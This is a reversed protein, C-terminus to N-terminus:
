HLGAPRPRRSRRPAHRSRATGATRRSRCRCSPRRDRRPALLADRRAALHQQQHRLDVQRRLEQAHARHAARAGTASSCLPKRPRRVALASSPPRSRRPRIEHEPRPEGHERRMGDSASMTTSSSCSATTCAAPCRASGRARRRPRARVDARLERRAPCRSATAPIRAAPAPPASDFARGAALAGIAGRPHRRTAERGAM